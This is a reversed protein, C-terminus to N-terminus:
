VVYVIVMIRKLQYWCSVQLEVLQGYPHYLGCGSYGPFSPCNTKGYTGILKRSTRNNSDRAIDNLVLSCDTISIVYEHKINIFEGYLHIPYYDVEAIKLTYNKLNHTDECSIYIAAIDMSDDDNLDEFYLTEFTVNHYSVSKINDYMFTLTEIDYLQINKTNQEKHLRPAVLTHFNSVIYCKGENKYLVGSAEVNQVKKSSNSFTYWIGVSFNGAALKQKEGSKTKQNSLENAYQKQYIENYENIKRSNSKWEFISFLLLIVFDLLILSFFTQNIQKKLNELNEDKATIEPRRPDREATNRRNRLNEEM